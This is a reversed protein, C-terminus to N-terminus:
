RFDIQIEERGLMPHRHALLVLLTASPVIAVSLPATVLGMDPVVVAVSEETWIESQGLVVRPKMQAMELVHLTRLAQSRVWIGGVGGLTRLQRPPSRGLTEGARHDRTEQHMRQSALHCIIAPSNIRALRISTVVVVSM